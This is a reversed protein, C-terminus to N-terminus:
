RLHCVHCDLSLLTGSNSPVFCDSRKSAAAAM